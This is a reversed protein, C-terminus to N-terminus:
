TIFLNENIKIWEILRKVGEHPMVEPKWGTANHFKSCDSVFYKLDGFRPKDFIIDSKKGSIEDILRICEILSIM